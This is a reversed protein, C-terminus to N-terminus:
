RSRDFGANCFSSISHFLGFWMGKLWGYKPVFVFSLAVAGIFQITISFKLIYLMLKMVGSVDDLNLAERLVIRTSLNVKKKALSFFLIPIMMFGLGGTEILLMILFQGSANWHAATNLTTLGTVCVASTATFMADVLPTFEGNRSFFPLTLLTGGMVIVEFFGLALLQVASIKKFVARKVKVM